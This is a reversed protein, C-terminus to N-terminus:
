MRARDVCSMSRKRYIGDNRARRHTDSSVVAGRLLKRDIGDVNSNSRYSAISRLGFVKLPRTLLERYIGDDSHRRRRRSLPPFTYPPLLSTSPPICPVAPISVVDPM